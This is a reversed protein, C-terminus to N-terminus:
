DAVCAFFHQLVLLAKHSLFDVKVRCSREFSPEELVLGLLLLVAAIPRVVQLLWVVNKGSLSFALLVSTVLDNLAQDMVRDLSDLLLDVVVDEVVVVLEEELIGVVVALRRRLLEIGGCACVLCCCGGRIGILM